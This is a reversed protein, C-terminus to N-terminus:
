EIDDKPMRPLGHGALACVGDNERVASAVRDSIRAAAAARAM